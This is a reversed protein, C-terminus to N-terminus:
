AELQALDQQPLQQVIHQATSLLPENGGSPIIAGIRTRVASDV